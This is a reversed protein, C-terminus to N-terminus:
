QGQFHSHLHWGLVTTKTDRAGEQYARYTMPIGEQEPQEVIRACASCAALAAAIFLIYRVKM